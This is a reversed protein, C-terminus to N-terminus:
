WDEEGKDKENEEWMIILPITIQVVLVITYKQTQIHSAVPIRFHGKVQTM